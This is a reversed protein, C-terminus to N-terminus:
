NNNRSCKMIEIATVRHRHRSVIPANTRWVIKHEQFNSLKNKYNKILKVDPNLKNKTSVNLQLDQITHRNSCIRIHKGENHLTIPRNSTEYFMLEYSATFLHCWFINEKILTFAKQNLESILRTSDDSTTSLRGQTELFSLYIIELNAYIFM